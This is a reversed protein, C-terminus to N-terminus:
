MKVFEVRRNKAKGLESDNASVPQTQGVGDTEIRNKDIKFKTVLLKKVASAREKSLTMNAAESGSNDTHGIIKIRSTADSKLANAIERIVGYSSPLIESSGSNFHIGTTVYKGENLLQSRVDPGSEAFSFNTIYARGESGWDQYCFKFMNVKGAEELLEPADVIKEQDVYVRLRNNQRWISIHVPNAYMDYIFSANRRVLTELDKKKNKWHFISLIDPEYAEFEVGAGAKGPSTFLYRFVPEQADAKSANIFYIGFINQTQGKKYYNYILDFEITCNDPIANIFKPYYTFNGRMELWKENQGDITVVEGSGNTIWGGPLDGVNARSFDDFAILKSGPVFDFKSEIQLKKENIIGSTKKGEKDKVKLKGLVEKGIDFFKKQSQGYIPILAILLMGFIFKM